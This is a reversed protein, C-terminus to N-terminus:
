KRKGAKRRTKRGGKGSTAVYIIGGIAAAGAVAIGAMAGTSLGTKEPPAGQTTIGQTGPFPTPFDTPHDGVIKMTAWFTDQDFVGDTRLPMKIGPPPNKGYTENFWSQICTGAEPSPSPKWIPCPPRGGKIILGNLRNFVNAVWARQDDTLKSWVEPDGAASLSFGRVGVGGFSIAEM